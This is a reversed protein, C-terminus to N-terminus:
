RKEDDSCSCGEHYDESQWEQDYECFVYGRAYYQNNIGNPDFDDLISPDQKIQCIMEEINYLYGIYDMVDGKNEALFLGNHITYLLENIKNM